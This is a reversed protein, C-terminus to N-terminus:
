AEEGLCLSYLEDYAAVASEIAFKQVHAKGREAMQRGFAPDRLVRALSAALQDVDTPPVLLGTVEHEIIEPLGGTRSAVIPIGAAAAELAALGLGEQLSPMAFVDFAGLLRHVDPRHGAFVVRDAIGLSAAEERLPQELAGGGLLVLRADPLTAGIQPALKQFARLLYTHGKVPVLRGACGVIVPEPSVGLLACAAQKDLVARQVAGIDIGNPIVRLHRPLLRERGTLFSAKVGESIFAAGTSLPLTLRTIKDLGRRGLNGATTQETTVVPVRALRAAIRAIVNSYAVHSQLLDVRQERLLRVLRPVVRPDPRKGERLDSIPVDLKRVQDEISAGAPAHLMAVSVDYRSRDIHALHLAIFQEAGGANLANTVFLLRVRSAARGPKV